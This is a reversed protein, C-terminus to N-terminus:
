ISSPEGLAELYENVHADISVDGLKKKMSAVVKNRRTSSLVMDSLANYWDKKTNSVLLAGTENFPGIDSAIMPIENIVSDIAKVWSRRRDYEGSLPCVILDATKSVFDAWEYLPMWSSPIIPAYKEFTQHCMQDGVVVLRVNTHKQCLKEIALLLGSEKLSHLHTSNGGWLINFTDRRHKIRHYLSMDAYNPIYRVDPCYRRYDECLLRNPTILVNAMKMGRHFRALTASDWTGKSSIYDPMIDYFDDLTVVIHKSERKLKALPELVEFVNREILYADADVEGLEALFGYTVEHGARELAKGPIFCRWISTNIEQYRDAFTINIRM